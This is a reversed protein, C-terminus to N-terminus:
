AFKLSSTKVQWDWVDNVQRGLNVCLFRNGIEKRRVDRERDEKEDGDNMGM